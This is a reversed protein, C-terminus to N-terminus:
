RDGCRADSAQSRVPLGHTEVRAVLRYLDGMMKGQLM